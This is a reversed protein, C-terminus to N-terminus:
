DAALSGYLPRTCTVRGWVPGFHGAVCRAEEDPDADTIVVSWPAAVRHDAAARTLHRAKLSSGRREM